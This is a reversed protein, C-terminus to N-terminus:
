EERFERAVARNAFARDATTHATRLLHTKGRLCSASLVARGLAGRRQAQVHIEHGKVGTGLRRRPPIPLRRSEFDLTEGKIVLSQGQM